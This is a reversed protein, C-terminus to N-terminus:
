LSFGGAKPNVPKEENVTNLTQNAWKVAFEADRIARQAVRKADRKNLMSRFAVHTLYAFFLVAFASVYSIVLPITIRAGREDGTSSLHLYPAMALFLTLLLALLSAVFALSSTFVPIESITAKSSQLKLELGSVNAKLRLLLNQDDKRFGESGELM